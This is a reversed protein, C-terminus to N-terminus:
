MESARRKQLVHLAAQMNYLEKRVLDMDQMLTESAMLKEYRAIDDKILDVPSVPKQEILHWEGCIM